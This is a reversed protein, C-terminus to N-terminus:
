YKNMKNIREKYLEEKILEELSCEKSLQFKIVNYVIILIPSLININGEFLINEFTEITPNNCYAVRPSSKEMNFLEKQIIEKINRDVNEGVICTKIIYAFETYRNIEMNNKNLTCDKCELIPKDKFESPVFNVGQCNTCRVCYKINDQSM